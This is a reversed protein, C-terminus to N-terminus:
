LIVYGESWATMHCIFFRIVSKGFYSYGKSKASYYNLPPPGFRGLWTIKQNHPWTDASCYYQSPMSKPNLVGYVLDCTIKIINLKNPTINHLHHFLKSVIENLKESSKARSVAIELSTCIHWHINIIHSWVRNQWPRVM